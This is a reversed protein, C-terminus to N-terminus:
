VFHYPFNQAYRIGDMAMAAQEAAADRMNIMRLSSMQELQPQVRSFPELEPPNEIAQTYYLQNLCMPQGFQAAWLLSLMIHTENSTDPKKLEHVLAEIQSPFSPPFYFIAGGWFDGQKFTRFDFRTVVCFNNGGGRLSRWLDSNEHANANIVEGSALVVEYNVINDCIM